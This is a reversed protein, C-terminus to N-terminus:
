KIIYKHIKNNICKNRHTYMRQAMEEEIKWGVDWGERGKGRAELCFRNQRRKWNQQLSFM